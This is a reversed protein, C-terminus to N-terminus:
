QAEGILPPEQDLAGEYEEFTLEPRIIGGQQLKLFMDEKPLAASQWSNVLSNIGNPDLSHDAWDTHPRVVVEDPNAGLWVALNKLAKELGSAATKAIIKLTATESVFRTKLAEGSEASNNTSEFLKAGLQVAELRKDTMAQRQAGAGAGAFELYGAQANQPLVWVGAGVVKPADDPSIGSIWAQPQSTQFLTKRYDASLQYLAIACRALGYLPVEDPEPTLDNTDIFVFPLFDLPRNGKKSLPVLESEDGDSRGAISGILSYMAVGDVISLERCAGHEGWVNDDSRRQETENLSVLSLNEDADVDWNMVAEAVYGSLIPNGESDLDSLLGFRGAILVERIIRRYLGNLTVGSKTAKERLGELAKPLEIALDQETMLGVMGRITSAVIDPFEARKKYATFAPDSMGDPKPLYEDGREKVQDEGEVVDRMVRWRDTFDSYLPHKAIDM